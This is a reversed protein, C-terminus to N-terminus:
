GIKRICVLHNLSRTQKSIDIPCNSEKQLSAVFPFLVYGIDKRKGKDEFKDLNEEEKNNRLDLWQYKSGSPKMEDSGSDVFRQRKLVVLMKYLWNAILVPIALDIFHCVIRQYSFSM